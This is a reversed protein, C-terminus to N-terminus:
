MEEITDYDIGDKEAELRAVMEKLRDRERVVENFKELFEFVIKQAETVTDAINDACEACLRLEEGKFVTGDIKKNDVFCKKDAILILSTESEKLVLPIERGGIANIFCSPVIIENSLCNYRMTGSIFNKLKKGFWKQLESIRPYSEEANQVHVFARDNTVVTTVTVEVPKRSDRNLYRRISNQPATKCATKVFEFDENIFPGNDSYSTGYPLSFEKKDVKKAFLKVDREAGLQIEKPAFFDDGGYMEIVGIPAYFRKQYMPLCLEGDIPAHTGNLVIGDEEMRMSVYPKTTNFGIYATNGDAPTVACSRTEGQIAM